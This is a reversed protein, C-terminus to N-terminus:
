WCNLRLALSQGMMHGPQVDLRHRHMAGLGRSHHYIYIYYILWSAERLNRIEAGLFTFEFIGCRLIM